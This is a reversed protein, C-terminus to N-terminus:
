AVLDDRKIKGMVDRVTILATHVLARGAGEAGTRNAVGAANGVARYTAGDVVAMEMPECLYGLRWQMKVLRSKADIMDNVPKDGNWPKPVKGSDRPASDGDGRVNEHSPPVVYRKAPIDINAGEKQRVHKYAIDGNSRLYSYRDLSFGDRMTVGNGGLTAESKAQDYIRRYAMAIKLLDKNGERILATALPWAINDNDAKGDWDKGMKAREALRKKQAHVAEWEHAAYKQKAPLGSGDSDVIAKQKNNDNAARPM